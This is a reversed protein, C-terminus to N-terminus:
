QTKGYNLVINNFDFITYPNHFKAILLNFDFLDVRNNFDLDGPIPCPANTYTQTNAGTCNLGGNAPAPNTCTRTQTGSIGCATNKASWDSWGGDIPLAPDYTQPNATKLVNGTQEQAAVLTGTDFTLTFPATSLPKVHLTAIIGSGQIGSNLAVPSSYTFSARGNAVTPAVLVNPFFSGQTISSIAVKTPDYNVVVTAVTVKSTTTDIAITITNNQNIILTSGPPNFSLRVTGSPTVENISVPTSPPTLKLYTFIGLSLLIITTFIIFRNSKSKTKKM